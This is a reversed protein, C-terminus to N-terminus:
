TKVKYDGGLVVIVKAVSQDMTSRVVDSNPLGLAHAVREGLPVDADSGVDIQSKPNNFTAANGSGAFSFGLAALRPCATPVLGPTGVGNLLLVSTRSAIADTPVSNALWTHVLQPVGSASTDVAYSPSSGGSDIPTVPLDTPFLGSATRSDAALGALLTSLRTAGLSSTGGAGLQRLAAAIPAPSTPLAQFTADLVRNLRALQAAADASPSTNYLAYQVAQTGNLKKDQGQPVLVVGGKSTHQIVNTDVDVTIGGFVNILKALQAPTLVWSGDITVGNLMSSLAAQSTSAGNPLALAAGFNQQGYGCVNTITRPPVLVVVGNKTSPDHALLVSADAARTSGQVQLLVTAQTRKTGDHHEVVKHVGFALAGVVIIAAVAIAAGGLLGVKRHQQRRRQQRAQRRTVPPAMVVPPVAPQAAM